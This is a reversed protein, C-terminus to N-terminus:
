ALSEGHKRSAGLEVESWPRVGTVGMVPTLGWSVGRSM